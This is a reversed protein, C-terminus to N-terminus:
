VLAQAAPAREYDHIYTRLLKLADAKRNMRVLLNAERYAARLIDDTDRYFSRATQSSKLAAPFDDANAQLGALGEFILGSHLENGTRILRKEGAARGESAWVLAGKRFAVWEAAAKPLESSLDQVVKFPRYLPDGVFTSMWSLVSTAMYSSEAFTFGSLLRDFFIDPHTTLGLYPEYVN